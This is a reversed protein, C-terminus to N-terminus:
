RAAAESGAAPANGGLDEGAAERDMREQISRIVESNMSGYSEKAKREIWARLPEPLRLTLSSRKTMEM